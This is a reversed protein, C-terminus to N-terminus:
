KTPAASSVMDINVHSLALNTYRMRVVSYIFIWLIGVVGVVDTANKWAERGEPTRFLSRMM